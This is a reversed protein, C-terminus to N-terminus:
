ADMIGGYLYCSPAREAAPAAMVQWTRRRVLVDRPGCPGPAVLPSRRHELLSSREHGPREWSAGPVYVSPWVRIASTLANDRACLTRSATYIDPGDRGPDWLTAIKILDRDPRQANNSDNVSCRVSPARIV